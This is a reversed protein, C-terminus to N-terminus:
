FYILILISESIKDKLKTFGLGLHTFPLKGLEIDTRQVAALDAAGVPLVRSMRQEEKRSVQLKGPPLWGSNGSCTVSELSVHLGATRHLFAMM